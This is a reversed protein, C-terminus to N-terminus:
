LSRFETAGVGAIANRRVRRNVGQGCVTGPGCYEVVHDGRSSEVEVSPVAIVARGTPAIPVDEPRRM